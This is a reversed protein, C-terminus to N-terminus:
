REGGKPGWFVVWTEFDDSFEEFRHEVGAEVFIIDGPGFPQREGAKLVTGTGKSVIYIEDQEHPLQPDHGRPAYLGASMTGHRLPDVYIGGGEQLKRRMEETRVLWDAM